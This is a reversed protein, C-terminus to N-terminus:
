RLSALMSTHISPHIPPGLYCQPVEGFARGAVNAVRPCIVFVASNPLSTRVKHSVLPPSGLFRLVQYLRERGRERERERERQIQIYRCIHSHICVCSLSFVMLILICIYQFTFLYTVFDIIDVLLDLCFVLLESERERESYM